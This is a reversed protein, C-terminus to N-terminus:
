TIVKCSQRYSSEWMIRLLVPFLNQFQVLCGAVSSRQIRHVFALKSALSVWTDIQCSELPYDLYWWLCIDQSALVIKSFACLFLKTSTSVRIDWPSGHFISLLKHIIAALWLQLHPLWGLPYFFYLRVPVQFILSAVEQCLHLLSLVPFDYKSLATCCRYGSSSWHSVFSLGTDTSSRDYLVPVVDRELRVAATASIAIFSSNVLSFSVSFTSYCKIEEPYQIPPSHRSNLLVIKSFNELNEFLCQLIHKVLWILPFTRM